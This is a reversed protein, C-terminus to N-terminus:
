INLNNRTLHYRLHHPSIGDTLPYKMQHSPMGGLPPPSMRKQSSVDKEQLNDRRTYPCERQHFPIAEPPFIDWRTPSRTVIYSLDRLSLAQVNNMIGDKNNNNGENGVRM